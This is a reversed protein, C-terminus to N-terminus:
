GPLEATTEVRRKLAHNLAEFGAHTRKLTGGLLGKAVTFLIGSFREGHVLRTSGDPNPVLVFSHEGDLLGGPGLRGLWRLEQGPAAALVTPKFTMGRGGEPNLHMVLKAGVEARGEARDLFPNWREYAAFDALVGWVAQPSAEIDITTSITASM